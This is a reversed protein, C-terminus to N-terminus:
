LRSSQNNEVGRGETREGEIRRGVESAWRRARTKKKGGGSGRLHKRQFVRNGDPRRKKQATRRGPTTESEEERTAGSPVTNRTVFGRTISSTSRNGLDGGIWLDDKGRYSKKGDVEAKGPSKRKRTKLYGLTHYGKKEGAKEKKQHKSPM